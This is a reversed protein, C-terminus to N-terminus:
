DYLGEEQWIDVLFDVMESLPIPQPFRQSTSLLDDYTTCWSIIPERPARRPKRSQDGIWEKRMENWAVVAQNVFLSSNGNEESIKINENACTPGSSIHAEFSHSITISNNEMAEPSSFWQRRKGKSAQGFKRRQTVGLNKDSLSRHKALGGVCSGM